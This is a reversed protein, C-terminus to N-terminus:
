PSFLRGAKSFSFFFDVKCSLNKKEKKGRGELGVFLNCTVRINKKEEADRAKKRPM